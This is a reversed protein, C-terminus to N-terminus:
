ILSDLAPCTGGEPEPAGAGGLRLSERSQGQSAWGWPAANLHPHSPGAGRCPARDRHGEPLSTCLPPHTDSHNPTELESPPLLNLHHGGKGEPHAKTSTTLELIARQEISAEPVCCCRCACAKREWDTNRQADQAALKLNWASFSRGCINGQKLPERRGGWWYQGMNGKRQGRGPACRRWWDTLEERLFTGQTGM